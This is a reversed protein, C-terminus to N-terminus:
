PQKNLKADAIEVASDILKGRLLACLGKFFRCWEYRREASRRM